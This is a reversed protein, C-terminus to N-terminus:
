VNRLFDIILKATEEANTIHLHHPGPSEVFFVKGRQGKQHTLWTEINQEVYNPLYSVGEEAKIYLVPTRFNKSIYSIQKPSLTMFTLYKLRIDHTFFYKNSGPETEKTGRSMLLKCTTEDLGGLHSHIFKDLVTEYSYVKRIKSLYQQDLLISDTIVKPIMDLLDHPGFIIPTLADIAVYKEVVGYNHTGTYLFGVQAGLSHGILTVKPWKFHKLIRGLLVLFDGMQYLMGPPYHSSFGHGPYDICLFQYNPLGDVLIPAIKDFSALNDKWGHLCIATKKYDPDYGNWLRASVVGWPVPIELDVTAPSSFNRYSQWRTSNFDSKIRSTAM